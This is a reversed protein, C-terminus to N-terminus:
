ERELAQLPTPDVSYSVLSVNIMESAILELRVLTATKSTNTVGIYKLTFVTGLGAGLGM